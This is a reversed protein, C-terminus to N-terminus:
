KELCVLSSFLIPYRRFSFSRVKGGEDWYAHFTMANGAVLGNCTVAMHKIHPSRGFCPDRDETLSQDKGGFSDSRLHASDTMAATIM